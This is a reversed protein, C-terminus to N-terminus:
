HHIRQPAMEVLVDQPQPEIHLAHRRQVARHLVDRRQTRLQSDRLLGGSASARPENQYLGPMSAGSWWQPEGRKSEPFGSASRTTRRASHSVAIMITISIAPPQHYLEMATSASPQCM